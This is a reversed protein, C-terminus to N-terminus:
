IKLMLDKVFENIVGNLVNKEVDRIVEDKEVPALRMSNWGLDWMCNVDPNRNEIDREVMKHLFEATDYNNDEINSPFKLSELDDELEKILTDLFRVKVPAYSMTMAYTVEERKGKRRILEYGCDLLLKNDKDPCSNGNAKLFGIPIKLKFLAQATNLFHQNNILVQMLFSQNKTLSGQGDVESVAQNQWELLNSNNRIEKRDIPGESQKGELKLAQLEPDNSAFVQPTEQTDIVLNITTYSNTEAVSRQDPTKTTNRSEDTLKSHSITTSVIQQQLHKDSNMAHISVKEGEAKNTREKWRHELEDSFSPQEKFPQGEAHPNEINESRQESIRTSEGRRVTTDKSDVKQLIPAYLPKKMATVPIPSIAKEKVIRPNSKTPKKNELNRSATKRDAENYTSRRNWLKPKEQHSRKPDERPKETKASKLSSRKSAIIVSSGSLVKQGSMEHTPKEAKKLKLDSKLTITTERKNETDHGIEMSGDNVSYKSKVGHVTSVHKPVDDNGTRSSKSQVAFGDQVNIEYKQLSDKKSAADDQNVVVPKKADHITHEVKAKSIHEKIVANERFQGADKKTVSDKKSHARNAIDMQKNIKLHSEPVYNSAPSTNEIDTLSTLNTKGQTHAVKAERTAKEQLVRNQGGTKYLNKQLSTIVDAEMKSVGTDATLTKGMETEKKLKPVKQAEGNQREAKPPPLEELGMLKAVVNPIRVKEGAPSGKSGLQKITGPASSKNGGSISWPEEGISSTIGSSWADPKSGPGCSQSRRHSISQMSTNSSTKNSNSPTKSKRPYALALINQEQVSTNAEQKVPEHKHRSSGDFSFRPRNMLKKRNTTNSSSEDSEDEDKDKLLRVKKGQSGVMYDSAEQLSVLMRLSEELDTAGKMLQRGLEISDRDFKPGNSCTELIKNLQQVGKSIESIQQHSLFPHQDTSNRKDSAYRGAKERFSISGRHLIRENGVTANTFLEINQLKGTKSLALALAMSVDVGREPNTARGFPVIDRSSGDQATPKHHRTGIWFKTVENDVMNKGSFKNTTVELPGQFSRRSNGYAGASYLM